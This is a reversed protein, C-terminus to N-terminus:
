VFVGTVTLRRFAAAALSQTSSSHFNVSSRPLCHFPAPTTFGDGSAFPLYRAVNLSSQADFYNRLSDSDSPCRNEQKSYMGPHSGVWDVRELTSRSESSVLVGKLNLDAIKDSRLIKQKDLTARTIKVVIGAPPCRVKRLEM